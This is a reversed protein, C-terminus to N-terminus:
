ADRYITALRVAAKMYEDINKKAEYVDLLGKWPEPQKEYKEDIALATKYAEESEDISGLKQLARGLYLNRYYLLNAFSLPCQVSFGLNLSMRSM